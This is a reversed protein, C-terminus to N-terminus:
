LVNKMVAAVAAQQRSQTGVIARQARSSRDNDDPVRQERESFLVGNEVRSM